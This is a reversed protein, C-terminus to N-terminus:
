SGSGSATAETGPKETRGSAKRLRDREAQMIPIRKQKEEIAAELEAVEAELGALIQKREALEVDLDRIDSRIEEIDVPTVSCPRPAACGLYAALGSLVVFLAVRQVTRFRVRAIEKALSKTPYNTTPCSPSFPLM